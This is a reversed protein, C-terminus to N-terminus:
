RRGFLWGKRKPRAEFDYGLGEFFNKVEPTLMGKGSAYQPLDFGGGYNLEVVVPGTATIAIDTSQYRIPAFTRAARDNIEILEEWYPLKLGMLGQIEPHEDLFEVEMGVRRTVTEIEGSNVDISCAINGPRWFADAINEGQPLKIIAIPCFVDKERVLNVLRVTALASAYPAFAVHNKLLPQLIYSNQGIVDKIFTEYSVPERGECTITNADAAKILFAGFSVMGETIKGFLGTELHKLVVDRLADANSITPLGPYFRNSQDIVAVTEPVPVQSANLLTSALVKDEAASSWGNHNCKHAIPWHLDNSIFTEREEDTFRNSHHLGNRVFEVMNLRSPSKALKRFERQIQLVSRGSSKAAHALLKAYDSDRAKLYRRYDDDEATLIEHTNM